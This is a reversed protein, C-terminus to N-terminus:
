HMTYREYQCNYCNWFGSFVGVIFSIYILLIYSIYIIMCVSLEVRNAYENIDMVRGRQWLDLYKVLIMQSLAPIVNTTRYTKVEEPSNM